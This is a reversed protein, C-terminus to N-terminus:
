IGLSLDIKNVLDVATGKRDGAAHHPHRTRLVPRGGSREDVSGHVHVQQSRDAATVRDSPWFM